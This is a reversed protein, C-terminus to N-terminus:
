KVCVSCNLACGCFEESGRWRSRRSRGRRRWGCWKGGGGVELGGGSGVVRAEGDWVLCFCLCLCLGLLLRLVVRVVFRWTLHSATRKGDWHVFTRSASFHLHSVIPQCHGKSGEHRVSM